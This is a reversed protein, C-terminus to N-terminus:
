STGLEISKWRECSGTDSNVAFRREEEGEVDLKKILVYSHVTTRLLVIGQKCPIDGCRIWHTRDKNM